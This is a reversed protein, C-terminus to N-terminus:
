ELGEVPDAGQVNAKGPTAEAHHWVGDNNRSYSADAKKVCTVLNFDDLSSGAPNFLQVRVAKKASLGSHFILEAPIEPHDAVVDESYLLLFAGPALTRDDCTWNTEGDKQIFVGELPIDTKGNNYLEIFKDNGNLENLRLGSYDIVVAAVKYSKVPSEATFGLTNTALITFSVETQDAQRPIVGVYTDGSSKTMTISSASGGINTFYKITASTVDRLDTITASVTVDDKPTVAEPAFKVDSISAPGEYIEDKVCSVPICLALTLLAFIIKKM